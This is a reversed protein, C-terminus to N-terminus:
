YVPIPFYCVLFMCAEWDANKQGRHGTLTVVVYSGIQLWPPALTRLLSDHPAQSSRISLRPCCELIMAALAFSLFQVRARETSVSPLSATLMAIRISTGIKILCHVLATSTPCPLESRVGRSDLDTLRALNSQVQIEITRKSLASRM